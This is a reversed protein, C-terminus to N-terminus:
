YKQICKSASLTQDATLNEFHFVWKKIGAATTLEIQIFKTYLIIRIKCEIIGVQNQLSQENPHGKHSVM